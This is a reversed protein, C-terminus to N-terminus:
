RAATSSCRGRPPRSSRNTRKTEVAVGGYVQSRTDDYQDFLRGGSDTALAYSRAAMAQAGLAARPWSSPMENAIVGRVYDDVEVQNIVYGTGAKSAVVLDGRYSGQGGIRIPGAVGKAVLKGGCSAIRRGNPRELRVRPGSVM